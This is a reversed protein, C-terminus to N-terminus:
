KVLQVPKVVRGDENSIQVFYTGSPLMSLDINEDVRLSDSHFFVQGCVGYIDVQSPKDLNMVQIVDHTPNPFIAVEADLLSNQNVNSLIDASLRGTVINFNVGLSDTINRETFEVISRKSDASLFKHTTMDQNGINGLLDGALDTADIWLIQGLVGLGAEIVTNSVDRQEVKLVEIENGLIDLTGWATVTETKAINSSIRVSDLTAGPFPIEISDIGPIVSADFAVVFDFDDTFSDGFNLPTQRYLYTDDFEITAEVGFDGFDGEGVGLVEITNDTRLAAAEFGMIGLIMNAQPFSDLLGSESETAYTEEVTNDAIFDNYSWALDEGTLKFSTSDPYDSFSTYVLVDGPSPLTSSEVTIQGSLQISFLFSILYIFTQKM